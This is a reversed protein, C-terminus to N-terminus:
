FLCKSVRIISFLKKINEHENKLVQKEQKYIQKKTKDLKQALEAGITHRKHLVQNARPFSFAASSDPM